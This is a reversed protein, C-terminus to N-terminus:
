PRRSKRARALWYDIDAACRTCLPYKEWTVRFKIRPFWAFWVKLNHLIKARAFGQDLAVIYRREITNRKWLKINRPRIKWYPIRLINTKLICNSLFVIKGHVTFWIFGLVLSYKLFTSHIIKRQTSILRCALEDVNLSGFKCEVLFAQTPKSDCLVHSRHM